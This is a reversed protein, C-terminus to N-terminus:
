GQGEGIKILTMDILNAMEVNSKHAFLTSIENVMVHIYHKGGELYSFFLNESGVKPSDAM